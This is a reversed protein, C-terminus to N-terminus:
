TALSPFTPASGGTMALSSALSRSPCMVAISTRARGTTRFTPLSDRGRVPGDRSLAPSRRAAYLRRRAGAEARYKYRFQGRCDQSNVGRTLASDATKSARANANKKAYPPEITQRTRFQARPRAALCVHRIPRARERLRKLPDFPERPFFM